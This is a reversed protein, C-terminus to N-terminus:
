LYEMAQFKHPNMVWLHQRLRARHMADIGLAEQDSLYERFFGKTMPVWVELRQCPSGPM